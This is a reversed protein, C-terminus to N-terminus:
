GLEASVIVQFADTTLKLRNPIFDNPPISGPPLVLYSGISGKVKLSELRTRAAGLNTGEIERLIQQLRGMDEESSKPRNRSESQTQRKRQLEAYREMQAASAPVGVMSQPNTNEEKPPKSQGGLAEATTADRQKGTNFELSAVRQALGEVLTLRGDMAELMARLENVGERLATANDDGEAVPADSGAETKDTHKRNGMIKRNSTGSIPGALNPRITILNVDFTLRLVRNCSKGIPQFM